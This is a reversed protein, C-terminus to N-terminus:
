HVKLAQHVLIVLHDLNGMAVQIAERVLIVTKDQLVKRDRHAPLVKQETQDKFVRLDLPDLPVQTVPVVLIVEPERSDLHVMLEELDM